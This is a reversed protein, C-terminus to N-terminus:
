CAMLPLAWVWSYRIVQILATENQTPIYLVNTYSLIWFLFFLAHTQTLTLCLFIPICLNWTACLFGRHSMFGTLPVTWVKLTWLTWLSYVLKGGFAVRALLHHICGMARWKWFMEQGRLGDLCLRIVLEMSKHSVPNTPCLNHSDTSFSPMLSVGTLPAMQQAFAINQNPKNFSRALVVRQCTGEEFTFCFTNETACHFTFTQWFINARYVEIGHTYVVHIQNIPTKAAPIFVGDTQSTHGWWPQSRTHWREWSRMLTDAQAGQRYITPQWTGVTQAASRLSSLCSRPNATQIHWRWLLRSLKSLLVALISQIKTSATGLLM